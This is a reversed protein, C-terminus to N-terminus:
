FIHLLEALKKVAARWAAVINKDLVFNEVVATSTPSQFTLLYTWLM